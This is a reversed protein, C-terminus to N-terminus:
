RVRIAVTGKDQPVWKSDRMVLIYTTTYHWKGVTQNFKLTIDDGNKFFRQTIAGDQGAGMKWMIEVIGSGEKGYYPTAIIHTNEFKAKTFGTAITVDASPKKDYVLFIGYQQSLEM